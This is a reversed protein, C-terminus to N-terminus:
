HHVLIVDSCNEIELGLCYRTKGIDKMEFKSKLHIAIEELEALTGILNINGVYVAVIAFGFHSKKILVCPYLENNM